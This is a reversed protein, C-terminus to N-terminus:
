GLDYDLSFTGGSQSNTVSSGEGSLGALEGTGSGEIVHWRTTAKGEEYGGEARLVFSGSRGALAGVIRELGTYVATGDTRYCMFTDSTSEGEAQGAWAFVMRAKTLKAGGDLEQYTSEDWSTLTFTGEARATM